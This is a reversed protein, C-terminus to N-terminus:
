SSEGTTILFRITAELRAAAADADLAGHSALMLVGLYALYIADAVAAAGDVSGRVLLARVDAVLRDGLGRFITSEHRGRVLTAAYERALDEDGAFYTVFPTFTALLEAVLNSPDLPSDDAPAADRLDHIAAIWGDFIGVLLASKDGAAMVTGVSVGAREAIQRISTDAFGQAGFLEEAVALVRARTAARQVVRGSHVHESFM